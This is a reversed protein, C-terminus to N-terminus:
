YYLFYVFNSVLNFDQKIVGKMKLKKERKETQEGTPHSPHFLHGEEHDAEQKVVPKHGPALGVGLYYM